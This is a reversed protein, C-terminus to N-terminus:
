CNYVMSASAKWHIDRQKLGSESDFQTATPTTTITFFLPMLLVQPIVDVIADGASQDVPERFKIGLPGKEAPWMERQTDGHSQSVVAKKLETFLYHMRM